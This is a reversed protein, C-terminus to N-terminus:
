RNFFPWYGLELDEYVRSVVLKNDTLTVLTKEFFLWLRDSNVSLELRSLGLCSELLPLGFGFFNGYHILMLIYGLVCSSFSIWVCGSVWLGPIV